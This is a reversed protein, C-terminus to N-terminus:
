EEEEGLPIFCVIGYRKRLARAIGDAYHMGNGESYYAGGISLRDGEPRSVDVGCSWGWDQENPDEGLFDVLAKRVMGMTLLTDAKIELSWGM